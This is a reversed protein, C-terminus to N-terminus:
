KKVGYIGVNGSFTGSDPYIKIGDFQTTTSQYNWQQLSEWTGAAYQWMTTSYVFSRTAAQPSMVSIDASVYPYTSNSVAISRDPSYLNAQVTTNRLALLQVGYNTTTDVGGARLWFRIAADGGSMGTINLMIKYNTYTSTFINDVTVNAVSSFNSANLLVLGGQTAVDRSRTL